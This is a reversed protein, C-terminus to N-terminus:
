DIKIGAAKIIGTWKAREAAIYAAFEEPTNGVLRAGSQGVRQITAPSRIAKVAEANLKAIVAPPTKAPAVLGFWSSAEFGPVGMDAIPKVDPFQELPKRATVGLPRITGARIHQIVSPPNEFLGDLQGAVLAQVAPAAGRYPVHTIKVNAAHMFMALALHGTTGNGPSGFNLEDPKERTVKLFEEFSAIGTKPHVVLLIPMDAVLTIPAFATKPDFPMKAYLAENASLIGASSMMITYGDPAANAVIEAGVNGGAGARNEVVLPQGISKSMEEGVARALVDALGGAPFPAVVRIPQTPYTQAAATGCILLLGFALRAAVNM